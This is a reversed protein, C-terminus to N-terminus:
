NYCFASGVPNLEKLYVKDTYFASATGGDLNIAETVSWGLKESIAM